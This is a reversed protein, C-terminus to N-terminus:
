LIPLKKQFLISELSARTLVRVYVSGVLVELLFYLIVGTVRSMKALEIPM